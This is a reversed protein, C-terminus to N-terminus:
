LAVKERASHVTGDRTAPSEARRARIHKMADRGAIRGFIVGAGLINGGGLYMGVVGGAAEGVAYLGPIPADAANHVRADTDVELGVSSNVMVAAKLEVAYFPAETITWAGDLEKFFQEDRGQEVFRNYRAVNNALAAHNIGVTAGLAALTEERIVKGKLFQNELTEHDWNPAYAGPIYPNERSKGDAALFIKHDMIAWCSQDTQANILNDM